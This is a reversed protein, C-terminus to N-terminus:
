RCKWVLMSARVHWCTWRDACGVRARTSKGRATKPVSRMSYRNHVRGDERQEGARQESAETRSCTWRDACDVRARTSKGRAAKPVSRM